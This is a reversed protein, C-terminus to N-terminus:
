SSRSFTAINNSIEDGGRTAAKYLYWQLQKFIKTINDAIMFIIIFIIMFIIMSIILFIISFIIMFIIMFATM